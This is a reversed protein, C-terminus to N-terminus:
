RGRPRSSSFMDRMMAGDDASPMAPKAPGEDEGYVVEIADMIDKYNAETIGHQDVVDMAASMSMQQGQDSTDGAETEPKMSQAEM